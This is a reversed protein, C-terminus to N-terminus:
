PTPLVPPKRLPAEGENGPLPAPGRLQPPQKANGERPAEEPEPFAAKHRAVLTAATPDQAVGKDLAFLTAHLTNQPTTPASVAADRQAKKEDLSAQYRDVQLQYRARREEDTAREVRTRASELRREFRVIEEDLAHERGLIRWGQGGEVWQVEALGLYKGRSGVSVLASAGMPEAAQRRKGAAGDIMLDVPLEAAEFAAAEQGRVPLLLVTYDVEGVQGLESRAAEVPSTVTCGDVEGATVGVVAIRRGGAEVIKHGPFPRENGCVLNAALVPYSTQQVLDMLGETGLISWEGKGVTAADLGGAVMGEAMVQALARVTELQQNPRLSVRTLSGGADVVVAPGAARVESM